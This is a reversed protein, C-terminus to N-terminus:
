ERKRGRLGFILSGIIFAVGGTIGLAYINDLDTFSDVLKDFFSGEVEVNYFILTGDNLLVAIVGGDNSVDIDQVSTGVYHQMIRSGKTCDYIAVYYGYDSVVGVKGNASIRALNQENDNGIEWQQSLADGSFMAVKEPDNSYTAAIIEDSDVALDVGNISLELEKYEKITNGKEDYIFIGDANSDIYPSVVIRNGANNIDVDYTTGLSTNVWVEETTNCYHLDNSLDVFAIKGNNSIALDRVTSTLVMSWYETKDSAKILHLRDDSVTTDEYAVYEGNDSIWVKGIEQPATITWEPTISEKTYCILTEDTSDSSLIYSADDNTAVDYAGSKDIAWKLTASGTFSDPVEWLSINDDGISHVNLAFYNGDGSLDVENFFHNSGLNMMLIISAGSSSAAMVMQIPILFFCLGFVLILIKRKM